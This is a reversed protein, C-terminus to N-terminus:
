QSYEVLEMCLKCSSGALQKRFAVPRSQQQRRFCLYDGNICLAIGHLQQSLQYAYAYPFTYIKEQSQYRESGKFNFVNGSAETASSPSVCKGGDPYLGHSSNEHMLTKGRQRSM